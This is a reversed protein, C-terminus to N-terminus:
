NIALNREQEYLKNQQPNYFFHYDLKQFLKKLETRNGENFLKLLNQIAYAQSSDEDQQNLMHIQEHIRKINREYTSESIKCTAFRLNTQEIEKMLLEKQKENKNSPQNQKLIEIYEVWKRHLEEVPIKLKCGCMYNGKLSRFFQNCSKCRIIESLLYNAYPKNTAVKYNIAIDKIRKIVQLFVEESVIPKHRHNSIKEFFVTGDVQQKLICDKGTYVANSLIKKIKDARHSFSPYKEKIRKFTKAYTDEQLFIEFIEKVITAEEENIVLYRNSDLSYGFPCTNPNFKGQKRVQNRATALREIRFNNEMEAQIGAFAIELSSMDMSNQNQAVSIVGIGQKKLATVTKTFELSDRSFRDFNSVVITNINANELTRKMEIYQNRGEVKTGTKCEDKYIKRLIIQNNKCYEKITNIQNPISTKPNIEGSTRVYGDAIKNRM